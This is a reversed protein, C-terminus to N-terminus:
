SFDFPQIEDFKKKSLDIIDKMRERRERQAQNRKERQIEKKKDQGRQIDEPPKKTKNPTQEIRPNGM